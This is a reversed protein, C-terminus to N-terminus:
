GAAAEIAEGKLEADFLPMLGKGQAAFGCDLARTFARDEASGALPIGIGAATTFCRAGKDYQACAKKVLAYVPQLRDSPSGAALLERRCSRMTNAYSLMKSPTLHVNGETLAKDIKKRVTTMTKLWALEEATMPGPGTTTPALTTTTPTAAPEGDQGACGGVLLVLVVMVALCAGRRSTSTPM